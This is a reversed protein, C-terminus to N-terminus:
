RLTQPIHCLLSFGDVLVFFWYCRCRVLDLTMAGSLGAPRVSRPGGEFVLKKPKGQGSKDDVAVTRSQLWGGLRTAKEYLTIQSSQPLRRSLYYAATLGSLGGGLVAVNRPIGDAARAVISLRM